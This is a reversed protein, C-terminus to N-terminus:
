LLAEVEEVSVDLAAAVAAAAFEEGAISAAELARTEDPGLAEIQQEIMERVGEPIEAAIAAPTVTLRLGDGTGALWGRDIMHDVLGAVFLPTGGTRELIADVLGAPLAATDLRRELYRTVQERDFLPVRLETCLRQQGLRRVLAKVPHSS